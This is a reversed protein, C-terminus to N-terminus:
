PGDLAALTVDFEDMWPPRADDESFAGAPLIGDVKYGMAASKADFGCAGFPGYQGPTVWVSAQPYRKVFAKMPAKHELANCPLVVHGVPGLEELLSCFEGTPWQPSFVWLKGDKLRIVVTRVTASVNAFVLLQELAWADRGLEYRYTARNTLPPTLPPFYNRGAEPRTVAGAPDYGSLSAARAAPHLSGAAGAASIRLAARRDLRVCTALQLATALLVLKM